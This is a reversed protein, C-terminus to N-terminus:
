IERLRRNEDELEKVTSRVVEDVHSRSKGEEIRIVWDFNGGNASESVSDM